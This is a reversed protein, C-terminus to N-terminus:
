LKSPTDLAANITLASTSKVSNSADADAGPANGSSPCHHNSVREVAQPIWSHFPDAAVTTPPCFNVVLIGATNVSSSTSLM